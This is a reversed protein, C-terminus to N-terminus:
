RKLKYLALIPNSNISNEEALKKVLKYKGNMLEKLKDDQYIKECEDIIYHLFFPEIIVVLNERYGAVPLTMPLNFKDDNLTTGSIYEGSLKSYLINVLENNLIVTFYIYNGTETFNDIMYVFKSDALKNIRREATENKLFFNEPLNLPSMDIFFRRLIVGNLLSYINNDLPRIFYSNTDSSYFCNKASYTFWLDEKEIKFKQDHLTGDSRYIGLNYFDGNVKLGPTNNQFKYYYKGNQALNNNILINKEIRDFKLDPMYFLLKGSVDDYIIIRDTTRNILLGSINTYEEPGKGQNAIKAILNGQLDFAYLSNSSTLYISENYFCLNQIKGIQINNSLTIFSVSDIFDSTLFQDNSDTLDILLTDCFKGVLSDTKNKNNCSVLLIGIAIIIYRIKM